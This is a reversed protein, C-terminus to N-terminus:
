KDFESATADPGSFETMKYAQIESESMISQEIIQPTIFVVLETVATDGGKFKFLEGILPLDGLLPVKNVQDSVEKKRMGGLVVTQGDKVLAITDAKRTDVVPVNSTGLTVREVFVNFEPKIHLRVMGGRTIHPTVELSVGVNKFKVTETIEDGSLTREVYPHETVINFFAKENDLVLIRPNALLRADTNEQEARLRVDIDINDSLWGFRLAGIASTTKTTAGEFGGVVFPNRSGATPEASTWTTGRGADWEIGLDVKERSTIDYIRAEVLVQLTPRDVEDIFTNIAKINDETDSLIIHSTGPNCSISGRQSIFDKLAKEVEKVDAYTIHYIKSELTEAKETIEALSAIRIMNQTAVYSYGHSALINNLAEELPVNTLTATVNGVVTPSKVIDVDAQEAMIRLVDDIPTNRFDISIKKLMRQELTTLIEKPVEQEYAIQHQQEDVIQEEQEYTIQQEDVVQQQQEDAIQAGATAWGFVVITFVVLFKLRTYKIVSKMINGKRFGIEFWFPGQRYMDTKGKLKKYGHKTM